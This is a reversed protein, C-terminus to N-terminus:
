KCLVELESPAFWGIAGSGWVVRYDGFDDRDTIIGLDNSPQTRTDRLRQDEMRFNPLKGYMYQVITGTEMATNM